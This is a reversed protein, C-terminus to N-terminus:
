QLGRPAVTPSINPCRGMRRPHQAVSLSQLAGWKGRCGAEHSVLWCICICAETPCVCMPYESINRPIRRHVHRADGCGGRTEHLEPSIWLCIAGVITQGVTSGWIPTNTVRTWIPTPGEGVLWPMCEIHFHRPQLCMMDSQRSLVSM